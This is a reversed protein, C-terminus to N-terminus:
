LPKFWDSALAWIVLIILVCSGSDSWTWGMFFRETVDSHLALLTM